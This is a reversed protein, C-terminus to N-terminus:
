SSVHFQMATKGFNGLFSLVFHMSSGVHDMPRKALQASQMNDDSTFQRNLNSKLLNLKLREDSDQCPNLEEGHLQRLTSSLLLFSTGLVMFM